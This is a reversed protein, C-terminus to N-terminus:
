SINYRILEKQLILDKKNKANKNKSAILLPYATLCFFLTKYLNLRSYIGLINLVNSIKWEKQIDINKQLFM